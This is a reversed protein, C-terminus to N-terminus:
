DDETHEALIIFFFKRKGRLNQSKKNFIRITKIRKISEHAACLGTREPSRQLQCISIPLRGSVRPLSPSREASIGLSVSQYFYSTNVTKSIFAVRKELDVQDAASLM